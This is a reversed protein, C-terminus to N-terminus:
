RTEPQARPNTSLRERGLLAMVGGMGLVILPDTIEASRGPLWIQLIEIGAALAAVALVVVPQSRVTTGLLWLLAGFWFCKEILVGVNFELAGTLSAMFPLWSFGKAASNFQWPELGQSVVIAVVAAALVPALSSPAVRALFPLVAFVSMLGVLESPNVATGLIFIRGLQTTAALALLVILAHSPKWILRVAYAVVMWGVFLRVTDYASVQPSLLVPKLADKVKQWDITPLFPFLRSSLWLLIVASPVPAPRADFLGPLRVQRGISQYALAFTSGIATSMANLAVDTLSAVRGPVMTQIMEVFYSLVLGALVACSWRISAHWRRPLATAMCLGLPVYLLLNALVDGRWAREFRLSAAVEQLSLVKPLLLEFPYLSGYAILLLVVPLLYRAARQLPPTKRGQVHASEINM